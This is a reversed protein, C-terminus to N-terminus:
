KENYLSFKIVGEPVFAQIKLYRDVVFGLTPFQCPGYSVFSQGSLAEPFRTQLRVTQFRTFAAGLRLDIEQRADVADNMHANPKEPCQMARQVDRESLASFKARYIRHSPIRPNSELCCKIVEFAINEGELDCDLWLMLANCKRAEIKLQKQLNEASKNFVKHVKCDFLGAPNSNGWGGGFSDEVKLEMMHGLVSTVTMRCPLGAVEASPIDFLKNFPSAGQRQTVNQGRGLIEALAKAVSPKEAVALVHLM